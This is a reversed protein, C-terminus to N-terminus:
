CRSVFDVLSGRMSRVSPSPGICVFAYPTADAAPDAGFEHLRVGSRLVLVREAESIAGGASRALPRTPRQLPAKVVRVGESTFIDNFVPTFKADRDRILLRFQGIRGLLDM